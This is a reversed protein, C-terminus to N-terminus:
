KPDYPVDGDGEAPIADTDGESATSTNSIDQSMSDDMPTAPGGEQHTSGTDMSEQQDEVVNTAMGEVQLTDYCCAYCTTTALSILQPACQVCLIQFFIEGM